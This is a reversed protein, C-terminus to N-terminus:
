PLRSPSSTEERLISQVVGHVCDADFLPGKGDFTTSAIEICKVGM